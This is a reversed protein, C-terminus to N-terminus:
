VADDIAVGTKKRITLKYDPYTQQPDIGEPVPEGNALMDSLREVMTPWHPRFTDAKAETEDIGFFACLKVYGEPDKKLTPLACIAGIRPTATCYETRIPDTSEQKVWLACAIKTALKNVKEAEKRVSDALASIERMAYALDVASTQTAPATKTEEHLRNLVPYVQEHMTRVLSFLQKAKQEM